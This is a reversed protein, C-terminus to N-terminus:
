FQVIGGLELYSGNGYTEGPHGWRFMGVGVQLRVNEVPEMGLALRILGVLGDGNKYGPPLDFVIGGGGLGVEAYYYHEYWMQHTAELFFADLRAPEGSQTETHQTTVYTFGIGNSDNGLGLRVAYGSGSNLDADFEIGDNVEDSDKDAYLSLAPIATASVVWRPDASTYQRRTSTYNSFAHSDKPTENPNAQVPTGVMLFMLIALPVKM